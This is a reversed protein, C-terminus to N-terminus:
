YDDGGGEDGFIKDCFHSGISIPNTGSPIPEGGDVFTAQRFDGLSMIGEETSLREDGAAPTTEWGGGNNYAKRLDSFKINSGSEASPVAQGADPFSM